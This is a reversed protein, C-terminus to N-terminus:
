FRPRGTTAGFDTTGPGHRRMQRRRFFVEEVSVTPIAARLINLRPDTAREDLHRQLATRREAPLGAWIAGIRAQVDADADAILDLLKPWLGAETARQPLQGVTPEPLRSLLRALTRKSGGDLRVGLELLGRWSNAGAHGDLAGVLGTLTDTQAVTPNAAMRDLSVPGLHGTFTLLETNVGMRGANTVLTGISSASGISFVIDGVAAIVDPDCRAFVSLAASQLEPSGILVTHVMRPVRQAPGALLQRIIASVATGSYAFAASFILGEDDHVGHEVAAILRPTAAALFPGATVYDRRRLVENVVQIVSETPAVEAVMGVTRPDLYPACDAVYSTRLLTLTQTAKNPHDIGVAGAARGTMMPPVIRQVLPMSITLPIFPVLKSIRRFTEAHEDFIVAAMRQQLDHLHDAGLRELHALRHPSVHLTRALLIIQARTVLESM